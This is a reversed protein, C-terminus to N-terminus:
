AREQHHQDRPQHRGPGGRQGSGQARRPHRRQPGLYRGHSRETSRLRQHRQGSRVGQGVALVAHRVELRLRGQRGAVGQDAPRQAGPAPRPHRGPRGDARLPRDHGAARGACGGPRAHPEPLGVDPRTRRGHHGRRDGGPWRFRDPRRLGRCLRRAGPTDPAPEGGGALAVTGRSVREAAVGLDELRVLKSQANM